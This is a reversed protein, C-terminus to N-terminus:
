TMQETPGYYEIHKNIIYRLKELLQGNGIECHLLPIMYNSVPIYPWWPLQKIGSQPEGKKREAEKRFRVLEETEWLTVDDLFQAKSSTCQM